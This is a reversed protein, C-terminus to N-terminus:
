RIIIMILEIIKKSSYKEYGFWAYNCIYNSYLLDNTILMKDKFTNSATSTGSFIDIVINVDKCNEDVTKRIFDSLSYKNGLYRRNDIFSQNLGLKSILFKKDNKDQLDDTHM